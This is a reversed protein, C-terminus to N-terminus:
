GSTVQPCDRRLPAAFPTPAADDLRVVPIGCPSTYPPLEARFDPVNVELRDLTHRVSHGAPPPYGYRTISYRYYTM